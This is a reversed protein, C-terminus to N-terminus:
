VPRSLRLWYLVWRLKFLDIHTYNYLIEGYKVCKTFILRSCCAIRINLPRKRYPDEIWISKKIIVIGLLFVSIKKYAASSHQTAFAGIKIICLSVSHKSPLFEIAYFLEFNSKKFCGLYRTCAAIGVDVHMHNHM